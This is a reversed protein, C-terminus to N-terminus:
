GKERAAQEWEGGQNGQEGDVACATPGLAGLRLVGHVLGGLARAVSCASRVGPESALYKWTLVPWAIVSSASYEVQLALHCVIM